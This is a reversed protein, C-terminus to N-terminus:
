AARLSSDRWSDIGPLQTRWPNYKDKPSYSVGPIPDEPFNSPTDGGAPSPTAFLSSSPTAVRLRKSPGGYPQYSGEPEEQLSSLYEEAVDKRPHVFYFRVGSVNIEAETEYGCVYRELLRTHEEIGQRIIKVARMVAEDEGCVVFRHGASLGGAAKGDRQETVVRAGTKANIQSPM